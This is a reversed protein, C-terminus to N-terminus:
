HSTPAALPQLIADRNARAFERVSTPRRGTLTLVDTTAPRFQGLKQALDSGVLVDALGEPVGHGILAAKFTEPALAVYQVPRGSIERAIAALDAGTVVEPGTINYIRNTTDGSALAAAAARACDERTVWAAGGDGSAAAFTGSAIAQSLTGFMVLLDTYWNNRLITWSMGSRQIADETGRHQYAFPVPSDPDPHPMSTYLVHTVGARAAAAVARQHQRLRADTGDLKDTSIILAREVGHFAATLTADEADFDLRRVTVGREALDALKAPERTGAVISGPARVSETELLLELVRRGLTGGAGTILMAM